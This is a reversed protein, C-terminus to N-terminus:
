DARMAIVPDVQAARRAPLYSALAAVGLLVVAVAGFTTVDTATVGYLLAALLHVLWYAGVLGVAIGTITLGLGQGLVLRVVRDQTAGLAIRIGLERTRQSVTYSIVGYIGLAALLLALAAFATLLMMYFRPQSVSESLADQMTGLNYIPMEADVARLQERIAAALTQPEARSRILFSMDNLPLTGWGIYVAPYLDDSLGRQHVDNIVGVIEGQTKVGSNTGATDHSIGLTIHKGLPDENPFYKKVFGETVVVVPPPGFNEEARTFMRGRMLHMGLTSILNASAPRVDAVMRKDSPMPPRGDVDFSVRMGNSALPRADAIAVDQTGPLSALGTQLQAAFRRIDRDLPYKKQPLTLDFSLIHETQFGPDVQLLKVFSKILLGAGVLLVVALAMESVVLARRTRQTARRGSAGRMGEKLMQGLETKAAHMAPVLGFALGTVIAVAVSFALVRTDVVIDALRPLGKPGFAVIADVAWGALAGGIMAGAVSLLVSETILQRVIRGRGAGLATRVAIETERGAARVLLLNAVNACAILLVFTVAGFMTFLANRVDGTLYTQFEQATGSFSANSKPYEAQLRDGVTKMERKAAEVSVGPRVRGVALIFHAGRNDPDIMWSELEFPMWLDPKAPYTLSPTAVGVVTYAAGNLSISRGIVNPDAAFQTHWLKDSLVTVKQAGHQDEGKMFGRGLQMPVGILDFFSAGVDAASLRMPDSGAISLNASTGTQIAAMGVFSHTEDRYSLFDPPSLHVLKGEKSSSGIIVVEQPNRFPLPKLLVGNVISFVATTAGIALALTTVAIITFSPTRLLKRAAYRIDQLLIDM